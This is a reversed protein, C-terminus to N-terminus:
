RSYKKERKGREVQSKNRFVCESEVSSDWGLNKTTWLFFRKLLWPKVWSEHNLSPSLSPFLLFSFPSTLFPFWIPIALPISDGNMVGLFSTPFGGQNLLTDLPSVMHLQFLLPLLFALWRFRTWHIISTRELNHDLPHSSSGSEKEFKESKYSKNGREIRSDRNGKREKPTQDSFQSQIIIPSLPLNM